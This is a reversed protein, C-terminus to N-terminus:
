EEKRKRKKEKKAEMEIREKEELKHDKFGYQLMDFDRQLVRGVSVTVDNIPSPLKTNFQSTAV